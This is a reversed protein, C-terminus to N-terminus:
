EQSRLVSLFEPTIGLYSAIVYQPINQEIDKYQARFQEYRDKASLSARHLTREQLAVYAKEFKIRFFRELSPIQDFLKNLSDRHIQLVVSPQLAQIFYNAPQHTLYSYLDNVWWGKIGFQITYEQAKENLYYVRLSGDAIFRMHNSVDGKQLLIEKKSLIKPQFSALVLMLEQESISVADRINQILPQYVKEPM